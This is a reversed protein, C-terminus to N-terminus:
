CTRRCPARTASRSTTTTCSRRSSISPTRTSSRRTTTRARLAAGGPPRVPARRLRRSGRLRDHVHRGPPRDRAGHDRRDRELRDRRQPVSRAPRRLRAPARRRARAGGRVAGAAAAGRLDLREVGDRGPSRRRGTSAAAAARRRARARPRPRAPRQARRRLVHAADARLRVDPVRPDRAPRARAPRRPARARGQDRERLRAPRRARALLLLPKKGLRDRGLVLRERGRTTSRSPSCGTWAAPSRWPTSSRPSTRSSRPTAGRECSTATAACSTACRASTTSRATSSRASARTRTTIPPDGPRCTSSRSGTRRSSPARGSSAARPTPGATACGAFSSTSRGRRPTADASAAQSAACADPTYTGGVAGTMSGRATVRAM